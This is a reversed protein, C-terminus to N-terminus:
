MLHLFSVRKNPPIEDAAPQAATVRGADSAGAAAQAQADVNVATHVQM